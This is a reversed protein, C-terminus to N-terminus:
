EVGEESADAERKKAMKLKQYMARATRLADWDWEDCM